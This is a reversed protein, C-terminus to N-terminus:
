RTCALPATRRCLAAAVIREGWSRKNPGSVRGWEAALGGTWARKEGVSCVARHEHARAWRGTQGYMFMTGRGGEM